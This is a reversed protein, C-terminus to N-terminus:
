AIKVRRITIKIDEVYNERYANVVPHDITVGTYTTFAYSSSNFQPLDVSATGSNYYGLWINYINQFESQTLFSWSIEYNFYPTYLRQGSGNFGKDEPIIWRHSVPSPLTNNNIKFAPLVTM